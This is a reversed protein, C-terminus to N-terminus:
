VTELVPEVDAAQSLGAATNLYDVAAQAKSAVTVLARADAKLIRLWAALYSARDQRTVSGIGHQASWMAAGLEAVLEEAAYADTGFRGTLDRALRTTHGTWHVHEHGLTAYFHEARDFQGLPPIHITDDAPRYSATNGQEIVTAGLAAFFKEASEIREATNISRSKNRQAILDAGGDVQDASFVVFTRAVLRREGEDETDDAPTIPKWLAVTTGREGRRAHTGHRKWGAFTGYISSWGRVASVMALWASNFGRYPRGDISTPAGSDALSHWPMRWTETGAEIDAILQATVTEFLDNAHM